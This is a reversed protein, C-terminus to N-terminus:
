LEELTSLHGVEPPIHGRLKNEGISMQEINSMNGISYPITGAIHNENLCESSILKIMILIISAM